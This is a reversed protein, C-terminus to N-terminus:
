TGPNLYVTLTKVSIRRWKRRLISEVAMSLPQKFYISKTFKKGHRLVEEKKTYMSSWVLSGFLYIHM